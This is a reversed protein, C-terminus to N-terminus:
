RRCIRAASLPSILNHRFPATELYSKRFLYITLCFAAFVRHSNRIKVAKRVKLSVTRAHNTNQSLRTIFDQIFSIDGILVFRRTSEYYTRNTMDTHRYIM